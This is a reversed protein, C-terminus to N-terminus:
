LAVFEEVSYFSHLLLSKMEKKFTNCSFIQKIYGPLKNYLKTDTSIVSRKHLDTNYGLRWIPYYNSVFYLSVICHVFPLRLSVVCMCDRERMVKFINFM